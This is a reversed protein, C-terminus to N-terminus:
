VLKINVISLKAAVWSFSFSHLLALYWFLNGHMVSREAHSTCLVRPM